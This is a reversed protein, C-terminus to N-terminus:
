PEGKGSHGGGKSEAETRDVSEIAAVALAAIKVLRARREAKNCLLHLQKSICNVWDVANHRDDRQAGGWQEDQRNREASVDRFAMLRRWRTGDLTDCFSTTLEDNVTVARRRAHPPAVPKWGAPPMYGIHARLTGDHVLQAIRSDIAAHVDAVTHPMCPEDCDHDCGECGAWDGAHTAIAKALEAEDWDNITRESAWQITAALLAPISETKL